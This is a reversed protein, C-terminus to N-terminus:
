GGVSMAQCTGDAGAPLSEHRADRDIKKATIYINRHSIHCNLMFFGPLRM